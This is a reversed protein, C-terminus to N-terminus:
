SRHPLRLHVGLDPEVERRAQARNQALIRVAHHDTFDAIALGGVDRPLGREGAVEDERGDVGIIRDARYRAKFIQFHLRKKQGRGEAGDKRLAKHAFKAVIAAFGDLGVVADGRHEPEVLDSSCVDSSWDSIRMEYATKQKFFFFFM